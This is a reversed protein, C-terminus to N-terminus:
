SKKIQVIQRIAAGSRKAILDKSGDANVKIGVRTPKNTKPCILM